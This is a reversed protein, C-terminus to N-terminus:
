THYTHGITKYSSLVSGYLTHKMIEEGLETNEMYALKVMKGGMSGLAKSTM